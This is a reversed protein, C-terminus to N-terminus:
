LLNQLKEITTESDRIGAEFEAISKEAQAIKNKKDLIMRRFKEIKAKEDDIALSAKLKEIEAEASHISRNIRAASDLTEQDEADIFTGLIERREPPSGRGPKAGASPEATTNNGADNVSAAEAGIRRYLTKLEDRIRAIHKKLSQIQRLPGGEASFSGSIKRKEERLTELDQSLARLEERKQIIEICLRETELGERPLGFQEGGDPLRNTDRSYQEGVTRRLQELNEQAKTLFSRLVLGQASKGIWTFVNGGERQELTALRDELSEIKSLLAEAQERYPACFETNNAGDLLLRGLSGHMLALDRLFTSEERERAGIGEELEKFRRTQEEVAQISTESAAIDDQFRRYDSLEGFTSVDEQPSDAIRSFLTEGFRSLLLDLHIAQEKKRRELESIQKKRDDM